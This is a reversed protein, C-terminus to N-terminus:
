LTKVKYGEDGDEDDNYGDGCAYDDAKMTMTMMTLPLPLIWCCMKAVQFCANSHLSMDDAVQRFIHVRRNWEVIQASVDQAILFFRSRRKAM